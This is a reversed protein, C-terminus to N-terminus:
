CVVCAEAHGPGPNGRCREKADNGTRLIDRELFM